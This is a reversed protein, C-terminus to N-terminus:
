VKLTSELPLISMIILLAVLSDFSTSITSDSQSYPADPHTLPVCTRLLAIVIFLLFYLLKTRGSAAKGLDEALAFNEQRPKVGLCHSDRRM